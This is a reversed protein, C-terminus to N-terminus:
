FGETSIINFIREVEQDNMKQWNEIEKLVFPETTAPNERFIGLEAYILFRRKDEISLPKDGDNSVTLLGEAIAFETPMGKKDILGESLALEILENETIGMSEAVEKWNYLNKM